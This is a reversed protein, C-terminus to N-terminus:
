HRLLVLKQQALLVKLRLLYFLIQRLLKGYTVPFVVLKLKFIIPIAGIERGNRSVSVAKVILKLQVLLIVKLMLFLMIKMLLLFVM